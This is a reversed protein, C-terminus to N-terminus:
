KVVIEDTFVFGGFAGIHARYRVYRARTKGSWSFTKFSVADDKVVEHDIHAVTTFRRGDNSVAIEVCAPLFVEPGCIQMFDAGVYSIATRRGLDIVADMGNGGIFGQWRLDSYNWGGRLGDTLAGDGGASYGAFYKGKDGYTVSKGLALHTVPHEAEPRNGLEQSLDFAAVGSARLEAVADLARLRFDDYNKVEPASWAVESLALARPYLMFEAHEKSPIYEAWLNAQVGKIHSAAAPETGEPVPDYSYVKSIPLYGGIAEPQTSPADQYSDFYCYWGPTMIVDHGAAAARLGREAGRWCMIVADSSAGGDLIEDWGIVRRGKTAVFEGVRRMMYSQLEDVNSLNERRMREQCLPCTKWSGKSAEDGGIHIYESPFLDIIESLVDEVFTFVAENGICFDGQVSAGKSCSLDPYAAMVEESHSPMEIEPVVTMYRAAAYDVIERIDERTFYGGYAGASGQEAYRRGGVNWEKWLAEPRWAAFETLRPYKEIEIRWGAADTLHLHLRNFKYRSLLDIQKKVHEKDFFHRSVDLMVGRYAFRPEDTIRGCPAAGDACLQLLTQVGYFLGAPTLARIDVRNPSITMDYGEDSTIGAVAETVSLVVAKGEACDAAALGLPSRAVYEELSLKAQPANLVVLRASSDPVFVGDSDLAVSRPQPIVAYASSCIFSAALVILASKFRIYM